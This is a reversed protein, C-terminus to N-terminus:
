RRSPGSRLQQERMHINVSFLLNSKQTEVQQERMHISLFFFEIKEDRSGSRLDEAVHEDHETEGEQYRVVPPLSVIGERRLLFVLEVTVLPM